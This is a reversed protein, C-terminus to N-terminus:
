FRDTIGRALPCGCQGSDGFTITEVVAPWHLSKYHSYVDVTSTGNENGQVSYYLTTDDYNGVTVEILRREKNEFFPANMTAM